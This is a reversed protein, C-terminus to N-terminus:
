PSAVVESAGRARARDALGVHGLRDSVDVLSAVEFGSGPPPATTEFAFRGHVGHRPSSFGVLALARGRREFSLVSEDALPGEVRAARVLGVPHRGIEVEALAVTPTFADLIRVRVRGGPYETRGFVIPGDVTAVIADGAEPEPAFAVATAILAAVIPIM